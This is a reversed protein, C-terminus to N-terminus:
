NHNRNTYTVINIKISLTKCVFWDDGSLDPNEVRTNKDPIEAYLLPNGSLVHPFSPSINKTTM